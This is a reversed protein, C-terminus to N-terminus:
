PRCTLGCHVFASDGPARHRCQASKKKKSSLFPFDSVMALRTGIDRWFTVSATLDLRWSIPTSVDLRGDEVQLRAM